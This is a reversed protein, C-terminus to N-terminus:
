YCTFIALKKGRHIGVCADWVDGVNICGRTAAPGGVDGENVCLLGVGAKALVTAVWAIAGRAVKRGGGGAAAVEDELALVHLSDLVGGEQLCGDCGGEARKDEVCHALRAWPHCGEQISAGFAFPLLKGRSSVIAISGRTGAVEVQLPEQSGEHAGLRLLNSAASSLGQVMWGLGQGVVEVGGCADKEASIARQFRCIQNL